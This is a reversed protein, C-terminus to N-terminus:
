SMFGSDELNRKLIIDKCADFVVKVNNSDTANTVHYFIDKASENRMMFQELFFKVGADRDFAPIDYEEFEKVSNIRVTKIKESFLDEKNLFLIMDTREFWPSNCMEQFLALAESMRNTEKDEFLHQDYESLAAVYIIANVDEFCHIWKKRENRQGGVDIIEFVVGEIEYREEVIGTTRVRSLLIDQDSPKYNFQAIQDIRNFYEANSEIIHYEARKEWAKQVGRDAWLTKIIEGYEPTLPKSEDADKILKLEEQAEVSDQLGMEVVQDCIAKICTIVNNQIAGVYHMRDNESFGPGYLIRIQKFITSKGSEGAGLLLLRIKNQQEQYQRELEQQIALANKSEPDSKSGCAGM